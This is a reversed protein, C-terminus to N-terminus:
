VYVVDANLCMMHFVVTVVGKGCEEINLRARADCVHKPQVNYISLSRYFNDYFRGMIM